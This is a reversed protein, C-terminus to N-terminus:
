IVMMTSHYMKYKAYKHVHRPSPKNIDCRHLRNNMIMKMIKKVVSWM